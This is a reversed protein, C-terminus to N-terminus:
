FAGTYEVSSYNYINNHILNADNIFEKKSKIQKNSSKIKGCFNCGKGVLHNNPQQEFEGHEPCLIKIKSQSNIYNVLSYDYKDGHILKAENIFIDKSKTRNEIDCKSCGSGKLNSSPTQEFFGHKYCRINVNINSKVYKVSSYDYRDVHISKADIIFDDTTKTKKDKSCKVCNYGNLHGGATQEFVGHEKCIMKIHTRSNVYDVLSYDYKDGHVSKAKDIFTKTTLKEM